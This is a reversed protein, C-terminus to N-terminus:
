SVLETPCFNNVLWHKEFSKSSCMSYPLIADFDTFYKVASCHLLKSCATELNHGEDVTLKFSIIVFIIIKYIQELHLFTAKIGINVYL